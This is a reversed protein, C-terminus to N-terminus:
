RKIRNKKKKIVFKRETSMKFSIINLDGFGKIMKKIADKKAM